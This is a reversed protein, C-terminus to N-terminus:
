RPGFRESQLRISEAVNGADRAAALEREFTDDELPQSATRLTEVRQTQAAVQVTRDVETTGVVDFVGEFETAAFEKVADTDLWDGEFARELAKAKGSGAEVGLDRFVREKSKDVAKALQAEMREIKARAGAPTKDEVINDTVDVADQTDEVEVTTDQTTM